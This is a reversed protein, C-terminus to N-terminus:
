ARRAVLTRPKGALDDFDEVSRFGANTAVKLVADRHIDAHECVLVGSSSLWQPASAIIEALDKFGPVEDSSPSVIAMLPEHRLIPDLTAFEVEGVYPPNATILDFRGALEQNVADFWSSHIFNVNKLDSRVANERALALAEESLDVCYLEVEVGASSLEQAISFGIAGTGCGLDMMTITKLKSHTIENLARTVLEESEPRPILARADVKLDLNRFPWHGLIYQLPEGALRRSMATQLEASDSTGFEELLWKAEQRELGASVLDATTWSKAGM